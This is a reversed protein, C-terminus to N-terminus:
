YFPLSWCFELYKRVLRKTATSTPIRKFHELLRVEPSSKGGFGPLWSWGRSRRVHSPLLKKQQQRFFDTTHVQPNYPGLMIRAQIGGLTVYHSVECPYRGEVVNFCAEEYLLDLIRQDKIKEEERRTLFVNRQLSLVPDDREMKSESALTFRRLFHVWQRRVEFPRHHPKLQVELIGSCMWLAFVPTQITPRSGNAHVTSGSMAGSLGLSELGLVADLVEQATVSFGAEVDLQIVVGSMLYVCTQVPHNDHLGSANAPALTPSHQLKLTEQLPHHAVGPCEVGDKGNSDQTNNQVSTLISVREQEREWDHDNEFTDHSYSPATAVTMSPQHEQRHQQQSSQPQLQKEREYRQSVTYLPGVVEDFRTSAVGNADASSLSYDGRMYDDRARERLYESYQEVLFESGPPPQLMVRRPYDVPIVTIYSQGGIGGGGVVDVSHGGGLDMGTMKDRGKDNCNAPMASNTLPPTSSAMALILEAQKILTRRYM